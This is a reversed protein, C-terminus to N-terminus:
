IVGAVTLQGMRRTDVTVNAFRLNPTPGHSLETPGAGIM